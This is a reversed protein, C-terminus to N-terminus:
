VLANRYRTTSSQPAQKNGGCKHLLLLLDVGGVQNTFNGHVQPVDCFYRGVRWDLLHNGGPLYRECVAPCSRLWVAIWLVQTNENSRNDTREITVASNHGLTAVIEPSEADVGDCSNYM